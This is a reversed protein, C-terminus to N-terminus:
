AGEPIPSLVAFIFTRPLHNIIMCFEAATTRAEISCHQHRALNDCSNCPLRKNGLTHELTYATETCM